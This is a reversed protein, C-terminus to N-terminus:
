RSNSDRRRRWVCSEDSDLTTKATVVTNKHPELGRKQPSSGSVELEKNKGKSVTNKLLELRQYHYDWIDNHLDKLGFLATLNAM